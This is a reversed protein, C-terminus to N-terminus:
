HNFRGVGPVCLTVFSRPLANNRSDSLCGYLRNLARSHEGLKPMSRACWAPAVAEKLIRTAPSLVRLKLITVRGMETHSFREERATRVVKTDAM